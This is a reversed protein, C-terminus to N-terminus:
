RAPPQASAAERAARLSDIKQDQAEPSPVVVVAGIRAVEQVALERASQKLRLFKFGAVWKYKELFSLIPEPRM